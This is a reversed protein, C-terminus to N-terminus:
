LLKSTKSSRQLTSICSFFWKFFLLPKSINNVYGFCMLNYSFMNFISVQHRTRRDTPNVAVGYVNRDPVFGWAYDWIVEGGCSTTKTWDEVGRCPPVPLVLRHGGSKSTAIFPQTQPAKWSIGVYLDCAPCRNVCNTPSICQNNATKTACNEAYM